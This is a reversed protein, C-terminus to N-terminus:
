KAKGKGFRQFATTYRVTALLDKDGAIAKTAEDSLEALREGTWHMVHSCYACVMIDGESPLRDGQYLSGAATLPKGCNLCPGQNIRASQYGPGIRHTM